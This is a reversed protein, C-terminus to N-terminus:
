FTRRAIIPLDPRKEFEGRVVVATPQEEFTHWNSASLVELCTKRAVSHIRDDPLKSFIAIQGAIQQAPYARLRQGGEWMGQVLLAMLHVFQDSTGKLNVHRGDVECVGTTGPQELDITVGVSRCEEDTVLVGFHKEPTGPTILFHAGVAEAEELESDARYVSTESDPVQLQLGFCKLLHTLRPTKALWNSFLGQQALVRLLRM